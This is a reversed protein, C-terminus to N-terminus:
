CSSWEIWLSLEGGSLMLLGCLELLLLVNVEFPESVFLPSTKAMFIWM